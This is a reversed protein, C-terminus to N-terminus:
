QTVGDYTSSNRYIPILVIKWTLFNDLCQVLCFVMVRKQFQGIKQFISFFLSLFNFIKVKQACLGKIGFSLIETGVNIGQLGVCRRLSKWSCFHSVYLLVVIHNKPLHLVQTKGGFSSPFLLLSFLFASRCIILALTVTALPNDLGNASMGIFVLSFIQFSLM